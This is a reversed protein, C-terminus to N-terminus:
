PSDAEIAERVRQVLSPPVHDKCRDALVRKLEVAFGYARFCPECADLHQQIVQRTDDNLEGDIYRYLEVKAETCNGGPDFFASGHEGTVIRGRIRM